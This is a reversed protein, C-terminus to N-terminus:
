ARKLGISVTTKVPKSEADEIETLYSWQMTNGDLVVDYVTSTGDTETLMLKNDDLKWKAGDNAGVIGSVEDSSQCSKPDNQTTTGNKNFTIIIDELCTGAGVAKFFAFLDDIKGFPGRDIAPNVKM